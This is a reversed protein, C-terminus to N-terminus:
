GEQKTVWLELDADVDVDVNVTNDAQNFGDTPWTESTFEEGAPISIVVDVSRRLNDPTAKVTIQVAGVGTNKGFLREQGTNKFSNGDALSGATKTPNVLIEHSKVKQIPVVVRAM